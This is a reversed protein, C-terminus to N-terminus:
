VILLTCSQDIQFCLRCDFMGGGISGIDALSFEEEEEDEDEDGTKDDAKDDDADDDVAASAASAAIVENAEALVRSGYAEDFVIELIMGTYYDLGRVMTMDISICDLLEENGTVVLLDILFALEDVGEKGVSGEAYIAGCSKLQDIVRLLRSGANASASTGGAEAEADAEAAEVRTLNFMYDYIKDAVAGSIGKDDVMEKRVESWPKKDLKDIAASITKIKDKEVGCDSLIADLIKRNNIKLRIRRRSASESGLATPYKVTDLIGNIADYMFRVIECDDFVLDMGNQPKATRVIDLDCQWFERYRGKTMRPMDRRYVRGVRAARFPSKIRKRNMAIYRALPVTLDYRLSLSESM